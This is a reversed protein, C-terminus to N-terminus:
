SVVYVPHGVTRGRTYECILFAACSVATNVMTLSGVVLHDWCKLQPTLTSTSYAM